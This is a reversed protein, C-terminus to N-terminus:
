QIMDIHRFQLHPTTPYPMGYLIYPTVLRTLKVARRGDDGGVLLLGKSGVYIEEFMDPGVGEAECLLGVIRM